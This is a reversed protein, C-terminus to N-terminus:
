RVTKRWRTEPVSVELSQTASYHISGKTTEFGELLDLNAAVVAGSYPYLALFKKAQVTAILGKGRYILAAIAYSMGEEAEPVIELAIAYVRELAARDADEITSLYTSVVGMFHDYARGVQVVTTPCFPVAVASAPTTWHWSGCRRRPHRQAGNWAIEQAPVARRGVLQAGVYGKQLQVVQTQTESCDVFVVHEAGGVTNQSLSIQAQPIGICAATVTHPGATIVTATKSFGVGPGDAPGADALLVSGPVKALRQDLEAYNRAEVALVDPDKAPLTRGPRLSTGAATPQPDEEDEYACAALGGALSM